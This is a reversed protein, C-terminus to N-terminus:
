GSRAKARQIMFSPFPGNQGEKMDRGHMWREKSNRVEQEKRGEKREGERELRGRGEKRGEEKSFERARFEKGSEMRM